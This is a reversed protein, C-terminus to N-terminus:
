DLTNIENPKGTATETAKIESVKAAKVESLVSEKFRKLDEVERLTEAFQKRIEANVLETQRNGNCKNIFSILAKSAGHPFDNLMDEFQKVEDGKIIIQREQPTQQKVQPNM